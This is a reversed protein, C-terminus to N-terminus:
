KFISWVLYSMKSIRCKHWNNPKRHCFKSKWKTLGTGIQGQQCYNFNSTTAVDLQQNSYVQNISLENKLTAYSGSHDQDLHTLILQDLQSVGQKSLFPQIIQKAVSFKSEDYSGGVDIMAHQQGHQM